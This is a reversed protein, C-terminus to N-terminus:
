PIDVVKDFNQQPHLPGIPVALRGHQMPTSNPCSAKTM